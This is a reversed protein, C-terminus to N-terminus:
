SGRSISRLWSSNHMSSSDVQRFLCRKEGPTDFEEAVNGDQYEAANEKEDGERKASRSDAQAVHAVLYGVPEGGVKGFCFFEILPAGIKSSESAM